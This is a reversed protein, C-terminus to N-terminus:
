LINAQAYVSILHVCTVDKSKKPKKFKKKDKQPLSQDEIPTAELEFRESFADNLRAIKVISYSCSCTYDCSIKSRM